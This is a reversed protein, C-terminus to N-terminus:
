VAAPRSWAQPQFAPDLETDAIHNTFNSITKFAVAVIVELVHRESYGAARFAELDSAEVFGRKDVVALAFTRLTRHM